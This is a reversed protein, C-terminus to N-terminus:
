SSTVAKWVQNAIKDFIPKIAPNIYDMGQVYGGTGTGHGYQLLIAIPTGGVLNSNTWSITVSNREVQIEYGWSSATLGSDMPTASSLADVGSRALGDLTRFIEDEQLKKLFKETEDNSHYVFEIM